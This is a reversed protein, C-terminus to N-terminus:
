DGRGTVSRFGVPLKQYASEACPPMCTSTVMIHGANASRARSNMSAIKSLDRVDENSSTSLNKDYM